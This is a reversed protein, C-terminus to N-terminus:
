GIRVLTDPAVNELGQSPPLGGLGGLWPIWLKTSNLSRSIQLLSIIHQRPPQRTSASFYKMKSIKAESAEFFIRTLFVDLMALFRVWSRQVM